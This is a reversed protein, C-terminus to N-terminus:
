RTKCLPWSFVIISRHIFGCVTFLFTPGPKNEVIKRKNKAFVQSFFIFRFCFLLFPGIEWIMYRIIQNGIVVGFIQHHDHPWPPFLPRQVSVYSKIVHAPIWFSVPTLTSVDFQSSAKGFDKDNNKGSGEKVLSPIRWWAALRWAEYQTSIKMAADYSTKKGETYQFSGQTMMGVIERNFYLWRLSYILRPVFGM